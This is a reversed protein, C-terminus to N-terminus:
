EISESLTKLKMASEILSDQEELSYNPWITKEVGKSSVVSPVSLYVGDIRGDLGNSIYSSVTLISKTDDIIAEVIRYTAMAIGYYTSGKKQIIEYASNIVEEEIDDLQELRRGQCRNCKRCYESINIGGISTVSYAALESDGHEGVVYTHINRPDIGTDKSLLYKLRATDLVTGSGIVQNAPLGLNQYTYLSLLDVPNTLVLVISEMNLYPRMNDFISDFIRRNKNLLDIRTEGPKQAAGATIIIIRADSIDYYNGAKINMPTSLSMAHNMDLADGEAKDKNVDIIVLDRVSKKNVFTYAVASGVMGDGIIVVKRPNISM